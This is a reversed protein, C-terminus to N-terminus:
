DRYGLEDLTEGAVQEFRAVDAASLEARWRGVRDARPPEFVLAHQGRRDARTMELGSPLRVDRITPAMRAPATEAYALMRQDWELGALAAARRAEREPASVLHEYRVELYRGEPLKAADRRGIRIGRAWLEAAETPDHTGWKVDRLSAAVDRGDRIVHVFCAEPLTGSIVNMRRLYRPTKDGWRPKGEGAAHVLHVARAADAVEVRDLGALHARLAKETIGFDGFRPHSVIFEVTGACLEERSAGAAELEGFRRILPPIFHTEGPIALDPHADLMLRM